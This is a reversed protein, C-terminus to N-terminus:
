ITFGDPGLAKGSELGWIEEIVKSEEISRTLINNDERTILTIIKALIEHTIGEEELNEEIYWEKM